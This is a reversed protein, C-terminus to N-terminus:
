IIERELIARRINRVETIVIVLGPLCLSVILGVPTKIFKTVYGIYPIDLCVKGVVDPAAVPIPDAEENADGKTYFRVPSSNDIETVRHTTLKNSEPAYFTIIDGPRILDTEVPRTVLVGGAHLRPEMSGSIVVDVSWGIHPALFTFLAAAMLLIVLVLAFANVTRKM